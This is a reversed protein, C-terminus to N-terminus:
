LIRPFTHPFHYVTEQRVEETTPETWINKEKRIEFFKFKNNNWQIENGFLKDKKFSLSNRAASARGNARDLGVTSQLFSSSSPTPTRGGMDGGPEIKM